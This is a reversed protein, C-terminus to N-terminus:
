AFDARGNDLVKAGRAPVRARFAVGKGGDTWLDVAITEGPYVPASFRAAFSRLRAPDYGCCAKVVAHAAIGFTCLGHLIPRSFGAAAAVSPDSHLPNYDANLRYLLAQQPLTTFELVHDPDRQPLAPPRPTEETRGSFGGNGRCFTTSTMTALPTGAEDVIRRETYVLAGKGAGKDVVRTVRTRGRVTAAPRLPQHLVIGQEGHVVMTRDIGTDPHAIWPGPHCLVVPFTPFAKLGREYVFQLQGSDMPDVGLGLGLAYLMTDRESYTQVVDEFPWDLLRSRDIM